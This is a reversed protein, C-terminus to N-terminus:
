IFPNNEREYGITSKTGHGPLVTLAPDMKYLRDISDSLQNWDGAGLDTRGFGGYFLTDGTFLLDDARICVSGTTHGPTSYFILEGRGLPLRDLDRVIVDCEPFRKEPGFYISANLRPNQMFTSDGEHIVVPADPYLEKYQEVYFIHDYHAHTLIIYRVTLNNECILKEVDQAKNGADIIACESTSDDYCIYTNAGLLGKTLRLYRFM